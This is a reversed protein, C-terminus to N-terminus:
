RSIDKPPPPVPEQMVRVRHTVYDPCPPIHGYLNCSAFYAPERLTQPLAQQREPRAGTYVPHGKM